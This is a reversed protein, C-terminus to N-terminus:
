DAGHKDVLYQYQDTGGVKISLDKIEKLNQELADTYKDQERIARNARIKAVSSAENKLFDMQETINRDLSKAAGKIVGRFFSM